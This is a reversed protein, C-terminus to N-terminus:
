LGYKEMRRYLAGRSLGLVEAAQSINGQSRQLAKRILIAEVSELSLEELNPSQQRMSDLGLDARQIETGRCMLVARELTHELERVNGPWSYQMLLQLASAEFGQVPRRYRAAYRSLFHVALVPIDERRERLAPVHIEVTNLRFLLDERFQGSACAARLDANTASIVRVDIRRSRSSGVREIEGSELVRLLKAQQHLPVNGIEDLFITGADALEFRGIRDSRADTFAGKVHGFLESEFLGEPIAGTNVAIMSRAARGSLAHLTQAVVEKGTGHEGTILVNADSPGVRTIAGLLSQMVPATAIFQPRNEIQLLRNQAALREAERLARHLEVQTRLIALLRENEWPKQIFDRAGRRMAEVALDINAWATMVIVPTTSDLTVIESLLDLGERGSTTDRTYNLDILVSDYSGTALAERVLAPSKATEVEYGQPRLLMEIAELVHQQDDAALIRPRDRVVKAAFSAIEESKAFQQM